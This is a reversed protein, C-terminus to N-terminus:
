ATASCRTRPRIRRVRIPSASTPISPHSRMVREQQDVGLRDWAEGRMRILKIAQYTGGAAWSLDAPGPDFWVHSALSDPSRDLNVTGDKFGQLNRGASGPEPRLNFGDIAWRLEVAGSLGASLERVVFAHAGASPAGVLISLDGDTKAPELRDNPFARMAALEPPRYRSLGFRDDFLSAGVGVVMTTGPPAEGPAVVGGPTHSDLPEVLAAREDRVLPGLRELDSSLQRFVDRLDAATDVTLDVALVGGATAPPAAVMVQHQGSRVLAAPDDVRPDPGGPATAMSDPLDSGAGPQRQAALASGGVACGLAAGVGLLV